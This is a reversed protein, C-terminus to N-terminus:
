LGVRLSIEYAILYRLPPFCAQDSKEPVNVILDNSFHFNKRFLILSDSTITSAVDDAKAVKYSKKLGDNQITSRQNERSYSPTQSPLLHLSPYTGEVFLPVSPSSLTHWM